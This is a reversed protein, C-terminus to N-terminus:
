EFPRARTPRHMVSERIYTTTDVPGVGQSELFCFIRREAIARQQQEFDNFDSSIIQVKQFEARVPM